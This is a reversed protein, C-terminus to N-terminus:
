GKYYDFVDGSICYIVLYDDSKVCNEKFYGFILMSLGLVLVFMLDVWWCDCYFVVIKM